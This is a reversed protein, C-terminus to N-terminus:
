SINKWVAISGISYEVINQLGAVSNVFRRLMCVMSYGDPVCYQTNEQTAEDAASKSIVEETTPWCHRLESNDTTKALGGWWKKNLM